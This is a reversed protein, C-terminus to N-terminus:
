FDNMGRNVMNRIAVSSVFTARNYRGAAEDGVIWAPLVNMNFLPVLVDGGVFQPDPYENRARVAIRVARINAQHDTNRRAHPPPGVSYGYFSTPDYPSGGAPIIGPFELTTLGDGAVAGPFGPTLPVGTGPTAGRPALTANTLVYAFQLLEVGEALLEEDAENVEDDQNTDVGRDLVLYPDFADGRAVPRVHYRFRQIRFLRAQGSRFCADGAANQRRFPDSDVSPELKVPFDAVDLAGVPQTESVTFYAYAAAAKCVAQLIEGKLFVDGARASVNVADETIGDATIRWANGRPEDTFAEPLWYQPNRRFFVLEDSNSTSDRPCPDLQAPCPGRYRDFDFALPADMGYGALALEEEIFLMASRASIQAARQKNGSLFARQQANVALVVFALVIASTGTAVVLELLTFGRPRLTRM